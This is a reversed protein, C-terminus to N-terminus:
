WIIPHEQGDIDILVGDSGADKPYRAALNRSADAVSRGWVETMTVGWNTEFVADYPMNEGTPTGLDETPFLELQM